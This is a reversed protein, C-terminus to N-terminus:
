AYLKEFDLNIELIWYFISPNIILQFKIQFYYNGTALLWNGAALLM